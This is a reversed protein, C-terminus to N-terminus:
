LKDSLTHRISLSDRVQQVARESEGALRAAEGLACLAMAEGWASGIERWGALGQTLLTSARELNGRALEVEGMATAGWALVSLNGGERWGSRARTLIRLAEEHDGMDRAIRATVALMWSELTADEVTELVCEAEQLLGSAAEYDGHMQEAWALNCLAFAIGRQDGIERRLALSEQHHARAAAQEGRYNAIWGTNNLALASGRKDGLRRCLDLAERALADAAEFDCLECAVWSLNNLVSAVGRENGTERFLALSEELVARAEQNDGQNHAITGLGNLARARAEGAGSGDPMALLRELSRRGENMHGRVLWYRWLSAGLRVGIGAEGREEAWDIAARLNHHEVELQKMWDAQGKRTLEPEAREAMRVFYEAHARRAQDLEDAEALREQAYAQITELMVFRPEGFTTEELRLLSHDVLAGLADVLDTQGAESVGSVAQAAELNFGGVFVSVWRFQWRQEDDLLDYSWAMAQRLTQHRPPRDRPGGKLLNLREGLRAVMAQPTFLKIRAAALEITLPLGDLKRCLEAVAGANERTLSFDPRAARARDVFLAVASYRGLSEVESGAERDPLSLSPVPYEHEGSLRLAIRSTAIVKLGPCSELLEAVTSGAHLVREMNDLVLLRSPEALFRKLQEVISVGPSEAVGLARAIAPAVLTADTVSSLSVFCVGGTFEDALDAAVRVALRTKGTGGPGTLTLLRAKALTEKLEALEGDRGVFSTLAVPLRGTGAAQGEALPGDVPSFRQSRLARLDGILDRASTYRATLSKALLKGVVRELGRPLESREVGLPAPDDRVIARLVAARDGTFPRRGALMEYLVVGLAWLDAQRGIEEGLLQEPAMYAPTGVVVGTQTLAEGGELKAVGFDLIRAEGRATVVINAPKIDRHIIGAEHARDLGEAIQIAIGICDDATLTGAEILPQLTAGEYYAMAIFVRGDLAEGIDYITCINPHDLASAARAESLFRARATDDARLDPPLFKLAVYRDLQPDHAKYVVGMGGRGIEGVIRYRGGAIEPAVDPSEEFASAFSHIPRDLIGDAREHALLMQEVETRIVPDDSCAQSLWTSREERPRGLAAEFLIAIRAFDLTM